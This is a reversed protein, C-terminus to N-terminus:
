KAAQELAQCLSGCEICSLPKGNQRYRGRKKIGEKCFDCDENLYQFWKRESMNSLNPQLCYIEHLRVM